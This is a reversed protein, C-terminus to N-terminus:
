RGNLCHNEYQPWGIAHGFAAALNLGGFSHDYILKNLASPAHGAHDQSAAVAHNSQSTQSRTHVKTQGLNFFSHTTKSSM